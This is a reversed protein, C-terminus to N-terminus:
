VSNRWHSRVPGLGRQPTSRSAGPKPDGASPRPDTVASSPVLPRSSTEPVLRGGEVRMVVDCVNLMSHRHTVLITTRDEMVLELAETIAAETEIDVSSTPEDLILIPADRLIARALSIRQREGGSLKMGREGVQTDYGDPLRGIFEDANAARAAAQITELGANDHGYAINEAVTGPLLMADQLVLSFQNRLDELRYDRLDVGDLSISGATPDYFRTLLNLITSKGAGTMGVIGVRDGAPIELCVDELVSKGRYAFSVDRLSLSGQARAVRRAHPSEPVEASADLIALTREASALSSQITAARKSISELPSYLQTLYTMLLLLDGLTIHGAQVHRAGIFLVGATGIAIVLGVLVDIAGGLLAVRVQSRLSLSAQRLFRAEEHDERVFAKVLRISGLASQIVSLASADLDKVELWGRRLYRRSSSALWFLLPIVGLAILSIQWDLRVTVYMMAIVTLASSVLPILGNILLDRLALADYQIRYVSDALGTSDHHALSLRQTKRFLEARFELTLREGAYTQLLWSLSGQLHLLVSAVIALGCALLLAAGTSHSVMPPLMTALPGPLSRSGLVSDVVIKLPLPVLLALPAALAGLVLIAGIHPWCPRSNRALRRLITIDGYSRAPQKTDPRALVNEANGSGLLARYRAGRLRGRTRDTMFDGQCVPSNTSPRASPERGDHTAIPSNPNGENLIALSRSTLFRGVEPLGWRGVKAVLNADAGAPISVYVVFTTDDRPTKV